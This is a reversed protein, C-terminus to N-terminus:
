GGQKGLARNLSGTVYGELDLAIHLFGMERFKEVIEKRLSPEIIKEIEASEVEIRATDGHHRLRFQRFGFRYLFDEGERIMQLKQITIPHGYPIRSALCAMAPKNWTPLGMERSLFRIEEKTLGADILPALIGAEQAAKFGPRYDGLDDLNAGHAVHRLARQKAIELLKQSLLKKCHYCRDPNNEVFQPLSIEETPILIHGIGSLKLFRAAEERERSPHLVSDATGALVKDGLAQRSVALLFTSDVGGSFAVLLSELSHLNSLLNQKKQRASNEDV